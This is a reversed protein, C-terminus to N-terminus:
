FFIWFFICNSSFNKTLLKSHMTGPLFYYLFVCFYVSTVNESAFTFVNGMGTRVSSRAIYVHVLMIYQVVKSYIFHINWERIDRIHVPFHPRALINFRSQKCFFIVCCPIEINSSWSYVKLMSRCSAVQLECNSLAPFTNINDVVDFFNSLRRFKRYYWILIKDLIM